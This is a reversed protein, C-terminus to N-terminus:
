CAVKNAKGYLDPLDCQTHNLFQKSFEVYKCHLCKIEYIKSKKIKKYKKQIENVSKRQIYIMELIDIVVESNNAVTNRTPKIADFERKLQQAYEFNDDAKDHQKKTTVPLLNGIWNDSRIKNMHHIEKDLIEYHICAVLRHVVIRNDYNNNASKINKYLGRKCLKKFLKSPIINKLNNKYMRIYDDKHKETELPIIQDKDTTNGIFLYYESM